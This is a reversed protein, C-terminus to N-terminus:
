DVWGKDSIGYRSGPVEDCMWLHNLRKAAYIIFPPIVQGTANGCGIVTLKHKKDRRTADSKRRGMSLSLKPPDLNWHFM